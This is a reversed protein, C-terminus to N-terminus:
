IRTRAGYGRFQGFSINSIGSIANGDPFAVLLLRRHRYRGAKCGAEAVTLRRDPLKKGPWRVQVDYESM